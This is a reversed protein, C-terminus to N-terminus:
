NEGNRYWQVLKLYKEHSIKALEDWNYKKSLKLANKGKQCFLHKERLLLKIAETIKEVNIDTIWGADFDKIEKAMNTGETVLCPLGYSLAELLGMPQGEFRSTLIFFDSSLLVKEKEGDYIGDKVTIVTNLNKENIISQLRIRNNGIDPGYIEITCRNMELERKLNSCAKLLLDLGKQYIDLRGIFVGKLCNEDFTRKIIKPTDVGNPIIIYKENWIEGSDLYERETLYQIAAANKIFKSFLLFNGLMKKIRKSRQAHKTLSCRPIIIYPVDRRICSRAIPIYLPYYIGEFIVLDPQNFPHPLHDLTLWPYEDLCHCKIDGAKLNKVLNNVNYWFVDDTKSQAEIQKPISYSPGAWKKGTLHTVYVIRM